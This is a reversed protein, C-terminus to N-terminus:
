VNNYVPKKNIISNVFETIKQFSEIGIEEEGLVYSSNESVNLDLFLNKEIIRYNKFMEWKMKTEYKYDKYRFYNETFEWVSNENANKQRNIENNVLKLFETKSEKYYSYYNYFNVLYHIGIAILLFGTDSEGYVMLGGFLIMPVAWILNRKNNKLNISWANNLTLIMQKKFIEERFPIEFKM